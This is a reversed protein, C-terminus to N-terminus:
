VMFYVKVTPKSRIRKKWLLPLRLDQFEYLYILYLGHHLSDFCLKGNIYFFSVLFQSKEMFFASDINGVLQLTSNLWIVKM